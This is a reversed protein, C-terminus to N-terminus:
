FNVRVGSTFSTNSDHIYGNAMGGTVHSYMVGGYVDVRKVPRWDLMASVVDTHGSCSGHNAGQPTAGPAAATTNAACATTYAQTATATGIATYNNQWEYYYGVAADLNSLVGYKAGLWIVQLHEPDVFANKQIQAPYGGNFTYYRGVVIDSGASGFDSPASLKAYEYGSFLTLKDWKYKLGVVAANVDAITAKLSEPTWPAAPTTTISGWTGLNVADKAYAYIADLSFGAYDGGVGIQFADKAGNGQQWGGVQVITSARLNNYTLLYKFSENYRATETEGTGQEVTGSTGILSFAYAGGFPDYAGSLDNTLSYQRGFTLTGYTANSVGVYARTNDLKGNRSSDGNASILDQRTSSILNNDVLSAPGNAAKLSYPDFGFNVDGIVYWSPVVQEKIKVGINSQSLGNPVKQWKGDNSDKSVKEQIGNPFNDNFKAAHSNYGGGMDVTGYVTIGFASLPCDAATSDLWTYFSAYCNPKPAVPAAKKTPIDAAQAASVALLGAASALLLSKLLRM